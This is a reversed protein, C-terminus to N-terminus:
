LISLNLANSPVDNQKLRSEMEFKKRPSYIIPIVKLFWFLQSHSYFIRTMQKGKKDNKQIFFM